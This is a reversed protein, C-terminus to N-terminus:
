RNEYLKLRMEHHNGEFIHTDEEVYYTKSIGLEKIEAFVGTGTIVDTVGLTNVTLVHGPKSNAALISKALLDLERQTMEDKHKEVDQFVGIKKEFSSDRAEALVTGDGSLLKIKTKVGDISKDLSYDFVNEGTEILWQLINERRNILEMKDGACVPYFRRGTAKYTISLAECIVDWATARPRCLTEIIYSTGAVAGYPIGFRRCCDTFVGSATINEYNFTDRNGAFYIGIDYATAKMTKEKGQQTRMFIGRFLETGDKYFVCRCGQTVDIGSRDRGDGSDDIFTVTLSRAAAGKRGSWVVSSVLESVDYPVDNKIILLQLVL